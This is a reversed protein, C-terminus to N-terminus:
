GAPVRLVFRAGGLASSEVRVDGGAREAIAKVIALGIGSGTRDTQAGRAGMAFITRRHEPDVGDGDDEVALEVFAEVVRCRIRVTGGESGHKIANELLNALAHVLEDGDIRARAVRPVRTRVTVCRRQALPAIMEITARIEAVANCRTAVPPVAELSSFALMGDILRGLRLTEQRATELFRRATQPDTREDLVTELYARISALPTRLEHGVAPLIAREGVVGALQQLDLM